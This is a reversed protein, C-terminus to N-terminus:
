AGRGAVRRSWLYLIGGASCYYDRLNVGLDASVRRIIAKCNESHEARVKAPLPNKLRILWHRGRGGKSTANQVYALGKAWEDVQAIGSDDLARGGHGYDFDIGCGETVRRRWNWFSTGFCDILAPHFDIPGDNDTPGDNKGDGDKPIRMDHPSARFPWQNAWRDLADDDGEVPKFQWELGDHAFPLYPSNIEGLKTLAFETWRPEM